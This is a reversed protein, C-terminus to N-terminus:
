FTLKFYDILMNLLHDSIRIIFWKLDIMKCDSNRLRFYALYDIKGDNLDM